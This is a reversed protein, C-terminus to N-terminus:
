KSLRKKFYEKYKKSLKVEGTEEMDLMAQITVDDLDKLRKDGLYNAEEFSKSQEVEKTNNM